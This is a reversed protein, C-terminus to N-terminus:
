LRVCPLRPYQYCQSLQLRLRVTPPGSLFSRARFFRLPVFFSVLSYFASTERCLHKSVEVEQVLNTLLGLALCQRDFAQASGEGAEEIVDHPARPSTLILSSTVPVMHRQHVLLASWTPNSHSINILVRFASELCRNVSVHDSHAM